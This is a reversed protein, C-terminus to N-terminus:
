MKLQTTATTELSTCYLFEEKVDVKHIYRVFVFLQSCSAVDTSKDFQVAFMPFSRIEAIVQQKVDTSMLLIRRKITDNSLPVQQIKKASTEGLLLKVMDVACPKVLTSQHYSTKQKATHLAVEFSATSSAASQWYGGSDM